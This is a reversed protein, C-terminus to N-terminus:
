LEIFIRIFSVTFSGPVPKKPTPPATSPKDLKCFLKVKNFNGRLATDIGTDKDHESVGVLSNFGPQFVM